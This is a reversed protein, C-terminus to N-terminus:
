RGVSSAEADQIYRRMDEALLFRELRLRMAVHAVQRVYTRHSPYREEISPRPDGLALREAKLQHFDIKQGAGDCLDGGAFAAARV